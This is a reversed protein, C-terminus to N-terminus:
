FAALFIVFHEVRKKLLIAAVNHKGRLIRLDFGIPKRKRKRESFICWERAVVKHHVELLAAYLRAGDKGAIYQALRRKCMQSLDMRLRKGIGVVNHVITNKDTAMM